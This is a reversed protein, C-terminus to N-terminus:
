SSFHYSRSAVSNILNRLLEMIKPVLKTPIFHHIIPEGAFLHLDHDEQARGIVLPKLV